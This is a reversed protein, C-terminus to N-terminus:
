ILGGLIAVNDDHGIIFFEFYSLQVNNMMKVVFQFKHHKHNFPAIFIINIEKALM